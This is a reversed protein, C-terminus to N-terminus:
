HQVGATGWHQRPVGEVVVMIADRFAQDQTVADCLADTLKEVIAKATEDNVRHDYLKVEILPM